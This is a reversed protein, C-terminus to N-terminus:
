GPIQALQSWLLPPTALEFQNPQCEPLGRVLFLIWLVFVSRFGTRRFTLKSASCKGLTCTLTTLTRSVICSTEIRQHNSASWNGQIGERVRRTPIIHFDDQPTEEKEEEKWPSRWLASVQRPRRCITIYIRGVYIGHMDYFYM